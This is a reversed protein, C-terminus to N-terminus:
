KLPTPATLAAVMTAIQQIQAARKSAYDAGTYGWWDWCAKPNLPLMTAKTQPYLVVLDHADAWANYGAHAVFATGITDANQQCGHFAIHLRCRQGDGCRAPLYLYGTDALTNAASYVAQSFSLLRGSEHHAVAAADPLLFELLAAAADYDCAGIFPAVAEDCAGGYAQTPFLHATPKDAVFALTLTPSLQRYFQQAATVVSRAVRTDALGHFLWVRDNAYAAAPALEGAASRQRTTALLREIDIQEGHKDVCQALATMLSGNACDYPGGALLAVGDVREAHALHFQGAMYAGSSIGSVTIAPQLNLKPLEAASVTAVFVLSLLSVSAKMM